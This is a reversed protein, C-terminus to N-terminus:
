KQTKSTLALSLLRVIRANELFTKLMDTHFMKQFTASINMIITMSAAPTFIHKSM